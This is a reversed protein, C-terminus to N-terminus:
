SEVMRGRDAKFRQVYNPLAGAAIADRLEAMLVHYYFLNHITALRAGLIENVRNLHHLYGRSFNRCAHCGCTADLPQTDAQPPQAPWGERPKEPDRNEPSAGQAPNETM